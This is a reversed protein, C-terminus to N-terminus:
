IRYKRERREFPLEKREREVIQMENSYKENMGQNQNARIAELEPDVLVDKRVQNDFNGRERILDLNESSIRQEELSSEYAELNYGTTEDQNDEQQRDTVPQRLGESETVEELVEQQQVRRQTPQTITTEVSPQIFSEFGSDDSFGESLESMTEPQKSVHVEEGEIITDELSEDLEEEPEDEQKDEKLM